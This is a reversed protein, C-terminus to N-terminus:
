GLEGSSSVLACLTLCMDPLLQVLDPGLCVRYGISSFVTDGGDTKSFMSRCGQVHRARSCEFVLLSIIISSM